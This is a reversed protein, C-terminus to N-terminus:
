VSYPNGGNNRPFDDVPNEIFDREKRLGEAPRLNDVTDSDKFPDFAPTSATPISEDVVYTPVDTTDVIRMANAQRAKAKLRAENIFYYAIFIVAALFIIAVLTKM